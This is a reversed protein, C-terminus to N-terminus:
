PGSTVGCIPIPAGVKGAGAIFSSLRTDVHTNSMSTFQNLAAFLTGALAQAEDAEMAYPLESSHVELDPGVIGGVVAPDMGQLLGLAAALASGAISLADM